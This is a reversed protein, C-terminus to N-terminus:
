GLPPRLQAMEVDLAALEPHACIVHEVVTM